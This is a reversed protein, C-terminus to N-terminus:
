ARVITCTRHNILHLVMLVLSAALSVLLMWPFMEHALLAASFILFTAWFAIRMTSKSTRSVAFRVAFFSLGIFIYDLAHWHEFVETSVTFYSLAVLVPFVLCHVICLFSSTLGILDANKYFWYSKKMIEQLQTAFIPLRKLIQLLTDIISRKKM